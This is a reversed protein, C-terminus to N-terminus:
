KENRVGGCGGGVVVGWGGVIAAFVIDVVVGYFVM